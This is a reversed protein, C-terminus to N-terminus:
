RRLEKGFKCKNILSPTTLNDLHGLCWLEEGKAEQSVPGIPVYLQEQGLGEKIIGRTFRL